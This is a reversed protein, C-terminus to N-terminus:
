WPRALRAKVVEGWPTTPWTYTTGAGSFGCGDYDDEGEDLLFNPDCRQHFNWAIWPVDHEEALAMLEEAEAITQNESYGFEGILLPIEEAPEVVIWDFDEPPNYVHVEYAVNDGLPNDIWYWADRAWEQAGQAVIIHEPTGNAEEVARITDIARSFIAALQDNDAEEGHPENMLGFLVQPNDVFAEALKQYVPLTDETPWGGHSADEPVMSPDMFLTVLVYVGPKGTMHNVVTQIDEYYQPDDVLSKWQSPARFGGDDPFSWLNFRIFNAHWNDILEDSWAMLGEPDPELQSCADCSRTDHLNAGRGRFPEDDSTLIRNGRTRLWGSPASGNTGAAGASDNESGASAQGGRGASGGTTTEGGNGASFAGGAGARGGSAGAGGVSGGAVAPNGGSGAGSQTAGGVSNPMGSGGGQGSVATNGASGRAPLTQEPLEACSFLGLSLALWTRVPTVRMGRLKGPEPDAAM